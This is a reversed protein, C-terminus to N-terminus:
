ARYDPYSRDRASITREGDPDPWVIGFAPDDWRVGGAADPVYRHGMMYYVETDPALTQFGHACGKPIFYGRGNAATLEVAHWRLYTPSAPRLDVAVDWITGAACRVLKAEGHPERQYHLGRLTGTAVNFSANCQVGVLELGREAFADADYTRAFWGREDGIREPELVWAGTIPTGQFRM